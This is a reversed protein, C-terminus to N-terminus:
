RNRTAPVLCFLHLYGAHGDGGSYLPKIGLLEERMSFIPSYERAFNTARKGFFVHYLRMIIEYRQPYKVNATKYCSLLLITANKGPKKILSLKLADARVFPPSKM